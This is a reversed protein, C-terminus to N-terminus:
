YAVEFGAWEAASESNTQDGDTMVGIGVLDPVDAGLDGGAFHDIFARRVDVVERL